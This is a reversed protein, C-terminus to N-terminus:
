PESVAATNSRRMGMEMGSICVAVWAAAAILGAVVDSLYHVGLYLRTFGMILCWSVSAAVVVVTALWSRTFRLVLYAAVGCFVFTGMAHGSPFSWNMVVPFAAATEPRSREFAAKLAVILLASGAQSIIWGLALVHARRVLLVAAIIAAAVALAEGSGSLTIIGFARKWQPTASRALADALAQDFEAVIRGAFVEETVIAFGMIAAIAALGLALHLAVYKSPIAARAGALVPGLRPIQRLRRFLWTWARQVSEQYRTAVRATAIVGALAAGVVVIGAALLLLAHDAVTQAARAIEQSSAAATV